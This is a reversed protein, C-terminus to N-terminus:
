AQEDLGGARLRLGCLAILAAFFVLLVGVALVHYEASDQNRSVAFPWAFALFAAAVVSFYLLATFFKTM